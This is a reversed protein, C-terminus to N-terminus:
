HSWVLRAVAGNPGSAWCSGDPTCSVADYDAGDFRTWRRAGNFSVDSGNPGVAVVTDPRGRVWAVGSRYGSLNGGSAWHRGHRVLRASMKVGNDPANFDGGVAVGDDRDRFALSFVGGAGDPNAPIPQDAVSWHRGGDASHFIRAVSGGSALWADRSSSTVLCTGSAAFGFEGNAAPPMGRSPLVRWSLGADNTAIIRFKGNVPDSVALGRRGGPFFAMCDYFANPDHNVFALKWTRGGNRTTYIRSATQVGIALVSAHRADRAEVDRFLLGTTNRPSVDKWTAGGNTTRLVAGDSGGVWAVRRNVADLGRFQQTSGTPVPMWSPTRHHGDRHSASAPVPALVAAACALGALGALTVILQTRARRM